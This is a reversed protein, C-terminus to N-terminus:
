RGNVWVPPPSGQLTGNHNGTEDGVGTGSGENLKWYAVTNADIGFSTAPTFTTTYRAVNSIRVEDIVGPFYRGESDRGINIDLHGGSLSGGIAASGVSSGDVYGTLTSGNWVLAVHHWDGDNLSNGGIIPQFGSSTQIYFNARRGNRSDLEIEFDGATDDWASVIPELQGAEGTTKFWCEVTLAVPYFASSYPVAVYNQVGDFKLARNANTAYDGGDVLGLWNVGDDVFRFLDAHNPATTEQQRVGGPWIVNPDWSNTWGGVSNQLVKLWFIRGLSHGQFAWTIDNTLTITYYPALSTDVVGNTLIVGTRPPPTPKAALAQTALLLATTIQIITLKKV